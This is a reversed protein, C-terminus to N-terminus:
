ETISPLVKPEMTKTVRPANVDMRLRSMSKSRKKRSFSDSCAAALPHRDFKTALNNCLDVTSGRSIISMNSVSRPLTRGQGSTKRLIQPLTEVAQYGELIM